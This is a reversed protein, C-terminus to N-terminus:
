DELEREEREYFRREIERLYNNRAIQRDLRPTKSNFEWNKFHEALDAEVDATSMMYLDAIDRILEVNEASLQARQDRKKGM